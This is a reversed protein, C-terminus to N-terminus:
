SKTKAQKKQVLRALAAEMSFGNEASLALHLKLQEPTLFPPEIDPSAAANDRDAAINENAITVASPSTAVSGGPKKKLTTKM